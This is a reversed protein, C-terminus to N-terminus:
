NTITFDSDSGRAPEKSCNTEFFRRLFSGCRLQTMVNGQGPTANRAQKVLDYTLMYQQKDHISNLVYLLTITKSEVSLFDYFIHM